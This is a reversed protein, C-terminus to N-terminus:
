GEHTVPTASGLVVLQGCIAALHLPTSFAGCQSSLVFLAPFPILFGRLSTLLEARHWNSKCSIMHLAHWGKPLSANAHALSLQLFLKSACLPEWHFTKCRECVGAWRKRGISSCDLGPFSSIFGCGHCCQACLCSPSLAFLFSFFFFLGAVELRCLTSSIIEANLGETRLRSGGYTHELSQSPAAEGQGAAAPSTCAQHRSVNLIPSSPLAASAEHQHVASPECVPYWFGVELM